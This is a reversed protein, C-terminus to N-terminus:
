AAPPSPPSPCNSCRASSLDVPDHPDYVMGTLGDVVLEPSAGTDPVISPIGAGTPSEYVRVPGPNEAARGGHRWWVVEVNPVLRALHTALEIVSNEAGGRATSLWAIVAHPVM